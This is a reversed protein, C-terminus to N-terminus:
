SIDKLEIIKNDEFAFLSKGKLELKDGAKLGNPFDIALVASYEVDVEVQNDKYQLNTIRQKRETFYDLGLIAQKKLEEIGVLLLTVEGNSINEFRINEHMDKLMADIDFSNYAQIYNEVIQQYKIRDM